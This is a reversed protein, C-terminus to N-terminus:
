KTFSNVEVIQILNDSQSVILRLYASQSIILLPRVTKILEAHFLNVYVEFNIIKFHYIHAENDIKALTDSLRCM